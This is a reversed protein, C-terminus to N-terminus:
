SMRGPSSEIRDPLVGTLSATKFCSPGEHAMSRSQNKEGTETYHQHRRHRPVLTTATSARFRTVVVEGVRLTERAVLYAHDREAGPAGVESFGLRRGRPEHLETVAISKQEIDASARKSVESRELDREVLDVLDEHAVKVDVVDPIEIREENTTPHRVPEM